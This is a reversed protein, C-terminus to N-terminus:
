FFGVLWGVFGFGMFASFDTTSPLSASSSCTMKLVMDSLPTLGASQNNLHGHAQQICLDFHEGTAKLLPLLMASRQEQVNVSSPPVVASVQKSRTPPLLAPNIQPQNRQCPDALLAPGAAQAVSTATLGKSKHASVQIVYNFNFICTSNSLSVQLPLARYVHWTSPQLSGEPFALVGYCALKSIKADSLSICISLRLGDNGCASMYGLPVETFTTTIGM